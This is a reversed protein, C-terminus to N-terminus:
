EIGMSKLKRWLTTRNIGLVNAVENKKWHYKELLKLLDSSKLNDIDDSSNNCNINKRLYVPLSCSCIKFNSKSRIVAYEIVNELERINGRWDYNLLFDIAENEFENIEKKYLFSFKKLFHNALHPIDERRNRLPPIEIPIVNLRYYLDERFTGNSIANQLNVNTAAIIRVDVKRTISEGLREFTGEQLVRLLQSQMQLPMEAVEDLFITGKDAYEFRGIRDKIADTFAGKSHGFLESALLQPPLVSCNVKVFQNNKRKNTSYIADAILEKGTGTEGSILVTADTNAIEIILNFIEQMQKSVGVIGYFHTQHELFKEIEKINSVDRFSIVGGEPEGSSNRIVGANIKIPLIEGKSNQIHSDVEYINRGNELISAIPCNESCLESKLVNKCLRGIVENRKLGTIKEASSNFFNIKFNKDVTFIGEALSDLIDDKNSDM